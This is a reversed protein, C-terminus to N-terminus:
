IMILKLLQREMVSVMDALQTTIHIVQIDRLVMLHELILMLPPQLPLTHGTVVEMLDTIIVM